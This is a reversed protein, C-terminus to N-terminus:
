ISINGLIRGLASKMSNFVANLNLYKMVSNLHIGYGFKRLQIGFWQALVLCLWRAIGIYYELITKHFHIGIYYEMVSNEQSFELRTNQFYIAINYETILHIGFWQELFSVCSVALLIPTASELVINQFHIIMYYETISDWLLVGGATLLISTPHFSWKCFHDPLRM